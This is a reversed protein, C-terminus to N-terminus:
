HPQHLGPGPPGQRRPRPPVTPVELKLDVGGEEARPAFGEVCRRLVEALEVFERALEIQGSELRALDLLDDVLRSM